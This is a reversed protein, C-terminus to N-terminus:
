GDHHALHAIRAEARRRETIDEHTTVIGGDSTVEVSVAIWRGDKLHSVYSGGREGYPVRALVAELIDDASHGPLDGNSIRHELIQRLTTGPQVQEPSLGYMRAYRDNSLILRQERDFMALGQLMNSLAAQLREANKAIEAESRAILDCRAAALEGVLSEFGNSLAGIEDKRALFRQEQCVDLNGSTRIRAVHANLALIPTLLEQADGM